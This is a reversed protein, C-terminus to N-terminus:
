VKVISRSGHGLSLVGVWGWCCTLLVLLVGNLTCRAAAHAECAIVQMTVPGYLGCSAHGWPRPGKHAGAERAMHLLFWWELCYELVVCSHMIQVASCGHASRRRPLLGGHLQHRVTIDSHLLHPQVAVLSTWATAQCRLELRAEAASRCCCHSCFRAQRCVDCGPGIKLCSGGAVCLVWSVFCLQGPALQRDPRLHWAVMAWAVQRLLGLIGPDPASVGGPVSCLSHGPGRSGARARSAAADAAHLVACDRDCGAPTASYTLLSADWAWCCPRGRHCSHAHLCTSDQGSSPNPQCCQDPSVQRGVASGALSGLSWQLPKFRRIVDLWQKTYASLTASHRLRRLLGAAKHRLGWGKSFKCDIKGLCVKALTPKSIDKIQRLMMTSAVCYVFIASVLSVYLDFATSHARFVFWGLAAARPVADWLALWGTDAQCCCCTLVSVRAQVSPWICMDLRRM